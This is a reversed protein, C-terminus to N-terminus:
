SKRIEAQITISGAKEFQLTVPLKQGAILPQKFDFVMIHLGGPALNVTSNAPIPINEQLVMKMQGNVNSMTHLEARAAFSAQVAKLTDPTSGTNNITLFLGGQTVTDSPSATGGSMGAMGAKTTSSVPTSGSDSVVVSSNLYAGTIQLSGSASATTAVSTAATTSSARSAQTTAPVATTTATSDGCATLLLLLVALFFRPKMLLRRPKPFLTVFNSPDYFPGSSLVTPSM